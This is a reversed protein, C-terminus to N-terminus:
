RNVYVLTINPFKLISNTIEEFVQRQDVLGAKAKDFMEMINKSDVCFVSKKEKGYEGLEKWMFICAKVEAELATM